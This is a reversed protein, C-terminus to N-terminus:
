PRQEFVQHMTEDEMKVWVAWELGSQLEGHMADMMLVGIVLVPQDHRNRDAYWNCHEHVQQKTGHQCFISEAEKAAKHASVQGVIHDMIRYVVPMVHLVRHHAFDAPVVHRM